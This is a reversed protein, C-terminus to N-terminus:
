EIEDRAERDARHWASRARVHLIATTIAFILLGSTLALGFLEHHRLNVLVSMMDHFPEPVATAPVSTQARVATISLLGALRSPSSRWRRLASRAPMRWIGECRQKLIM